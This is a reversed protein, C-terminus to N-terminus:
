IEPTSPGIGSIKPVGRTPTSVLNCVLNPQFINMFVPTILVRFKPNLMPVDTRGFVLRDSDHQRIFSLLLHPSYAALPIMAYEPALAM